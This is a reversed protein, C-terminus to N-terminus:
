INEPFVAELFDSLSAFHADRTVILEAGAKKALIAHMADQWPVGKARAINRAESTDSRDQNVNILKHKAKLAALMRFAIESGTQNELEALLLKSIVIEFECSIARKLLQFAFEGLPRLRDHRDEAYDLYINTDLYIRRM